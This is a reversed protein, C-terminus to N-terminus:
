HKQISQDVAWFNPLISFQDLNHRFLCLGIESTHMSSLGITNASSTLVSNCNTWQWMSASYVPRFVTGNSYKVSRLPEISPLAMSLIDFSFFSLSFLSFFMSCNVSSCLISLLVCWLKQVVFYALDHWLETVNSQPFHMWCGFIVRARAIFIPVCYIIEHIGYLKLTVFHIKVWGALLLSVYILWWTPLIYTCIFLKLKFCVPLTAHLARFDLIRTKKDCYFSNMFIRWNWIPFTSRPDESGSM